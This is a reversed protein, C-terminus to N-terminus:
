RMADLGRLVRDYVEITRRYDDVAVREDNGHFRAVDQPGVTLGTFRYVDDALPAFWRSDSAGTLLYPAVVLPGSWADRVAREVVQWGPTGVRSLPPPDSARLAVTADGAASGLPRVTVRPDAIVRRVRAQAAAVTDGPLLRLNVVARARGPLVNDKTGGQIETLATTTRVLAASGPDATLGSAVLPRFLWLNGLVVRRGFSQQPAIARLMAETAGDLRAPFPDGQLRDLARALAGIAMRQPPRSSHGPEGTAELELSLYGKEGIGVLAVPTAAGPLLGRSYFGGEDLVMALHVGRARLLEAARRAGDVGTGEEDHGLEVLVTRAPTFGEGLLAECAELIGLASQKDDMAGRGWVMGGALEGAFPPHTWAREDEIPVVDQHAMLLVPALHPDRGPWTLLLTGAGVLEHPLAFMRPFSRALFDRLGALQSPDRQQPDDYTVTRFRLAQQLRAVAAATDIRPAPAAAAAPAPPSRLLAARACLVVVLALALVALTGCGRLLLRRKAM